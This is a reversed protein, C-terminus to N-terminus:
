QQQIQKSRRAVSARTRTRYGRSVLKCAFVILVCTRLSSGPTNKEDLPLSRVRPPNTRTLNKRV